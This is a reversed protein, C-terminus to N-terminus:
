MCFFNFHRYRHYCYVRSMSLVGPQMCVDNNEILYLEPQRMQVRLRKSDFCESYEVFIYM